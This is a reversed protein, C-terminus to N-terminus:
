ALWRHFLVLGSGLVVLLALVVGCGLSKSPLPADKFSVWKLLSLIKEDTIAAYSYYEKHKRQKGSKRYYSFYKTFEVELGDGKPTFKLVASITDPEFAGIKVEHSVFLTSYDETLGIQTEPGLSRVREVQIKIRNYVGERLRANAADREREPAREAWIRAAQKKRVELEREQRKKEEEIWDSM